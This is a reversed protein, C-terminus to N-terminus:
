LKLQLRSLVESQKDLPLKGFWVNTITGTNDVLLLTPTGRVKLSGLNAQIVEAIPVKIENLYQRAEEPSQPLAAVLQLDPRGAVGRVLQQYFPASESCYHCGKQLVLVIHSDKTSWDFGPLSVRMGPKLAQESAALPRGGASRDVVLNKILFTALLLAVIIIAINTVLEIRKFLTQV